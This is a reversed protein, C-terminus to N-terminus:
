RVFIVELCAMSFQRLQVHMGTGIFPNVFATYDIDTENAAAKIAASIRKQVNPSPQASVFQLVSVCTVILGLFGITPM